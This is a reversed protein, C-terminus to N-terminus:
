RTASRGASASSQWPATSGARARRRGARRRGDRTPPATASTTILSHRSPRMHRSPEGGIACFSVGRLRVRVAPHTASPAASPLRSLAVALLPSTTWRMVTSRFEPRRMRGGPRGPPSCNSFLQAGVRDLLVGAGAVDGGLGPALAVVVVRHDSQRQGHEHAVEVAGLWAVDVADGALEALFRFCGRRCRRWRAHRQHRCAVANRRVRRMGPACFVSDHQLSPPHQACSFACTGSRATGLRGVPSGAAGTLRCRGAEGGTKRRRLSTVRSRHSEPGLPYRFPIRSEQCSGHELRSATIRRRCRVAVKIRRPAVPSVPGRAPRRRERTIRGTPLRPAPPRLPNAM